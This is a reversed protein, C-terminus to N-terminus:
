KEALAFRRSFTFLTLNAIGMVVFGALGLIGTTLDNGGQILLIAIGATGNLSGHMIAAAIVSNCKNRAFSILPAFLITFITMFLVGWQPHDPYNYGQLIIPAHWIGWILGILLSAKWFGLPSLEKQLLGRWGLEEGFAAVANVTVGAILGQIISLWFPHVPLQAISDRMQQVQEPSFTKAYREFMGEMGPSYMVGPILLSVGFAGIGLGVPALWAYLWWRSLRFSIGLERLSGHYILKQVIMAMATPMFMYVLLLPLTNPSDFKGGFGFYLPLIIWSALFTLGLFLLIKKLDFQPQM